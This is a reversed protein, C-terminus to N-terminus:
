DLGNRVEVMEKRYMETCTITVIRGTHAHIQKM